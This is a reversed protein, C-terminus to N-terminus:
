AKQDEAVPVKKKYKKYYYRKLYLYGAKVTDM